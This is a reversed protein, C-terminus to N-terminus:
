PTRTLHRRLMQPTMSKRRKLQTTACAPTPLYYIHYNVNFISEEIKTPSAMTKISVVVTTVEMVARDIDAILVFPTIFPPQNSSDSM